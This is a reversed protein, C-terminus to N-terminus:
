GLGLPFPLISYKVAKGQNNEMAKAVPLTFHTRPLLDRKVDEERQLHVLSTSFDNAFQIRYLLIDQHFRLILRQMCNATM